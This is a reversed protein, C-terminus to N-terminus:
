QTQHVKHRILNKFYYVIEVLKLYQNTKCEAESGSRVDYLKLTDDLCTTLAYQGTLPSFFAGHVGKSAKPFSVVPLALEDAKSSSYRMDFIGAESFKSLFTKFM